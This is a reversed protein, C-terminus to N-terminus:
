WNWDAPSYACGVSISEFLSATRHNAERLAETARWSQVSVQKTTAHSRCETPHWRNRAIEV